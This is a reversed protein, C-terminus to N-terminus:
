SEESRFICEGSVLTRFVKFTDDHICLDAKKGIAISGKKSDIGLVKAPSMTAMYVVENLELNTNIFMNELAKNMTLVSGALTGDKLRASGDSVFVDQGGLSYKGEELNGASMCDTILITNEKGKIDVFGQYFEKSVHINDCIIECTFEKTLAAGVVGPERHHLPSMGNFCHTIHTVGKNYAELCQVYKAGSHGISMVIDKHNGMKQIFEFGGDIEPAITIVKIIDLYNKVFDYDPKSIYRENQAGKYKHSIFPGEFHVGLVEAGMCKHNMFYRINDLAKKIDMKNLTMTTLLISTVGNKVVTKVINELSEFDGDMTDSGGSGHIHIDIFGPSLYRGNLDIVEYESSEHFKSIPIIDEIVESCILVYNELIQTETVILGGIFAKKM